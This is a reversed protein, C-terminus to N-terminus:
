MVNYVHIHIYTCIIYIHIYTDYVYSYIHMCTKLIYIYVYVYMYVYVCVTVYINMYVHAKTHIVCISFHALVYYLVIYAGIRLWLIVRVLCKLFPECYFVHKKLFFINKM